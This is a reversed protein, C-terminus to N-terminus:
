AETTTPYEPYPQPTPMPAPRPTNQPPEPTPMPAPQPEDGPLQPEPMPVPEPTGGGHTLGPAEGAKGLKELTERLRERMAQEQEEYRKAAESVTKDLESLEQQARKIMQGCREQPQKLIEHLGMMQCIWGYADNLDTVHSAAEQAVGVAESRAAITKAYARLQDPDAGFGKPPTM